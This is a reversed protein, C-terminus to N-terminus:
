RKIFVSTVNSFIMAHHDLEYLPTEIVKAGSSKAGDVIYVVQEDDYREM